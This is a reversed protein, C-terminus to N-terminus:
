NFISLCLSKTKLQSNNKVDRHSHIMFEDVFGRRCNWTRQTEYTRKGKIFICNLMNARGFM